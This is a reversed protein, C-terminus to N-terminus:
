ILDEKERLELHTFQELEAHTYAELQEHTRYKFIYEIPLHAPKAEELAKKLNVLDSPIGTGSFAVKIVADIFTIETEGNRWSDAIGRLIDISCKGGTKWRAEIQSRRDEISGYTIFDMENEMVKIGFTSMTDFFFENGASQTEESLYGLDSGVAGFINIIYPDERFISHLNNILYTRYYDAKSM